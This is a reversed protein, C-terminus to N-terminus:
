KAPARHAALWIPTQASTPSVTVPAASDSQPGAANPPASTATAHPPAAKLAAAPTQAPDGQLNAPKLGGYIWECKPLKQFTGTRMQALAEKVEGRTWRRITPTIQLPPPFDGEYILKTLTPQSVGIIRSVEGSAIMEEDKANM